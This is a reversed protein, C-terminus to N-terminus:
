TFGAVPATKATPSSPALDLSFRFHVYRGGQQHFDCEAGCVRPAGAIEQGIPRGSPSFVGFSIETKQAPNSLLRRARTRMLKKIRGRM